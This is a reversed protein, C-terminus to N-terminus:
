DSNVTVVVRRYSCLSPHGEDRVTLVIHILKPAYVKPAKFSANLDEAGEITLQEGYTGPEPYYTWSYSLNDEDPDSSGEASLSVIEGSVTTLYLINKSTDGNLVAKPNHNADGYENTM